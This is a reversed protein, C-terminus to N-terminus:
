RGVEGTDGAPSPQGSVAPDAGRRASPPAQLSRPHFVDADASWAAKAPEGSEYLRLNERMWPLVDENGQKVAEFIAQTQAAIADDFLGNAASAMALTESTDQGPSTDYMSRATELAQKKQEETVDACTSYTRTLATLLQGDGPTMAAARLLVPHAWQCEGAALWSIGLLYMVEVSGPLQHAIQAYHESAATFEGERMLSNALLMRPEVLQPATELAKEYYGRAQADEGRQELLTGVFYNAEANAPNMSLVRGFSMLAADKQGAAGQLEGLRLLAEENSPDISTAVDYFRMAVLPQGAEEARRAAELYHGAGRSHGEVFALLPDDVTPLAEGARAMEAEAADVDGAERYALSLRYHLSSAKPQEGLARQYFDIAAGYDGRAFATRGMGELAAADKAAVGLVVQFAAEAETLRNLELLVRGLRIYGPLYRTDLLLADRYSDVARDLFGTQEYHVALLYPWRPNEPDLITANRLCAGAAEQQDHALYNIGMRGYALGLSRGELTARQSRFYETAPELKDRVDPSLKALDPHPVLELGAAGATEQALAQGCALLMVLALAFRKRFFTSM